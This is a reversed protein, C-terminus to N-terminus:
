PCILVQVALVLAALPVAKRLARAITTSHRDGLLWVAFALIGSWYAATLSRWYYGTHESWIEGTPAPERLLAVQAMRLSAYFFACSTCAAIWALTLRVSAREPSRATM